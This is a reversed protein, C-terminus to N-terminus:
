GAAAIRDALAIFASGLVASVVNSAISMRLLRNASDSAFIGQRLVEGMRVSRAPGSQAGVVGFAWMYLRWEVLVVVVELVAILAIGGGSFVSGGPRSLGFVGLLLALAVNLVPNTMCNVLAVIALGRWGVRFLAAVSLEIVLTTALAIALAVIASLIPPVAEAM